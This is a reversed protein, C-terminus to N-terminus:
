DYYERKPIKKHKSRNYWKKCTDQLKMLLLDDYHGARLELRYKSLYRKLERPGKM